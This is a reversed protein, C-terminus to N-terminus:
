YQHELIKEWSFLPADSVCCQGMTPCIRSVWSTSQTMTNIQEGVIMKLVFTNRFFRLLFLITVRWCSFSTSIDIQNCCVLSEHEPLIVPSTVLHSRMSAYHHHHLCTKAGIEAQTCGLQWQITISIMITTLEAVFQNFTTGIFNAREELQICQWLENFPLCSCFEHEDIISEWWAHRSITNALLKKDGIIM